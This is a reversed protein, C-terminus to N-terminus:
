EWLKPQKAASKYKLQAYVDKLDAAAAGGKITPQDAGARLLQPGCPGAFLEAPLGGGERQATQGCDVKNNDDEGPLRWGTQPQLEGATEAIAM